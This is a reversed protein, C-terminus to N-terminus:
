PGHKWSRMLLLEFFRSEIVYDGMRKAHVINEDPIMPVNENMNTTASLGVALAGLNIVM